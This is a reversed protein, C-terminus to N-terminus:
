YIERKGLHKGWIALPAMRILCSNTFTSNSLEISTKFTKTPNPKNPDITQLIKKSLVGFDNPEIGRQVFEGFWQEIINLNLCGPEENLAQVLCITLEMDNSIQGPELCLM